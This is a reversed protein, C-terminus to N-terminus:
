KKVEVNEMQPQAEQRLTMSVHSPVYENRSSGFATFSIFSMMLCRLYLFDM